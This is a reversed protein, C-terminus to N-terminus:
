NRWRSPPHWRPASVMIFLAWVVAVSQIPEVLYWHSLGVVLPASATALVGALSAVADGETLRRGSVYLLALSSALTLEISYLLAVQTSGLVGGLPVFFQGIWAIAPPKSGFVHLMASWWAQPTLRLTAWLNISGAGYWSQDWQWISRDISVWVLSPSVLVVGVLAPVLAAKLRGRLRPQLFGRRDRPRFSRHGTSLFWDNGVRRRALLGDRYCRAHSQEIGPSMSM